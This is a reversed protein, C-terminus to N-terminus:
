DRYRQRTGGYTAPNLSVPPLPALERLKLWLQTTRSKGTKALLGLSRGRELIKWLPSEPIGLKRAEGWTFVEGTGNWLQNWYIRQQQSLVANLDILDPAVQEYGSLNEPDDGVARLLIPQFEGKSRLFGNIVRVERDRPHYDFGLRTDARNLLEMSGSIEQLFGRPDTLLDPLKSRQDKKRMNLLTTVSAEPFASFLRTIQGFIELVKDGYNKNIPFFSEFPDLFVAANPRRELCERLFDIREEPRRHLAALLLRTNRVNPEDKLLYADFDEVAPYPIGLRTCLRQLNGQLVEAPNEPDIYVVPHRQVERGCWRKGTAIHIALDQAFPSKGLTYDGIVLVLEREHLLGEVIETRPRMERVIVSRCDEGEPPAGDSPRRTYRAYIRTVQSRVEEEPLPPDFRTANEELMEAMISEQPTRRAIMAGVTSLLAAHRQGQLIRGAATREKPSSKGPKDAAGQVGCLKHYLATLEAQCDKIEAPAGNFPQGTITFFHGRDYLEIAGDGWPVRKGSGELRGRMILKIGRGSPSVETYTGEFPAFVEKGWPKLSGGEDLSDDLDKGAYPDDPTFVFGVGHFFGHDGRWFDLATEFSIWTAPDTSSARNRTTQYPVKTPKGEANFEYRWLLWQKLRRLELPISDPNYSEAAQRSMKVAEAM